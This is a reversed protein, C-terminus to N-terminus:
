ATGVWLYRDSVALSSIRIRTSSRALLWPAPETPAPASINGSYNGAGIWIFEGDRALATIEEPVRATWAWRIGRPNKISGRRGPGPM